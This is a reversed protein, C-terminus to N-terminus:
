IHFLKSVQNLFLTDSKDPGGRKRGAGMTSKFYGVGRKGRVENELITEDTAVDEVIEIDRYKFWNAADPRVGPNAM